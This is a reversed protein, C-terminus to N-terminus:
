CSCFDESEISVDGGSRVAAVLKDVPPVVRTSVIKGDIAVIPMAGALVNELNGDHVRLDEQSQSLVENLSLMSQASREPTDFDHISVNVWEGVRDLFGVLVENLERLETCTKECSGCLDEDPQIWDPRSFFQVKTKDM